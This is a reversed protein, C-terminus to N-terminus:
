QYPYFVSYVKGERIGLFAIGKGSLFQPRYTADYALDMLKGDLILQEGKDTSVFYAYHENDESTLLDSNISAYPGMRETGIVLFSENEGIEIYVLKGQFLTANFPDCQVWERELLYQVFAQRDISQNFLREEGIRIGQDNYVLNILFGPLEIWPQQQGNLVLVIQKNMIAFFAINTSERGWLISFVENGSNDNFVYYYGDFGSYSKSDTVVSWTGERRGWFALHKGDPSITLETVEDYEGSIDRGAFNVRYKTGAKILYVLEGSPGTKYDYLEGNIEQEQGDHVLVFDGQKTANYTFHRGDSSYQM